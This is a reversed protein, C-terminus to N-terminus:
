TARERSEDFEQAGADDMPVGFGEEEFSHNMWGSTEDVGKLFADLEAQSAFEYTKAVDGPCVDEGWLITTKFTVVPAVYPLSSLKYRTNRTQAFGDEISTILSTRVKEGDKFRGKTDGSITGSLGWGSRCCRMRIWSHLVADYQNM